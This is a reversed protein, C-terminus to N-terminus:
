RSERSTVSASGSTSYTADVNASGESGSEPSRRAANLSKTWRLSSSWPTIRTVFSGPSNKARFSQNRTASTLLFTGARWSCRAEHEEQEAPEQDRQRQPDRDMDMDHGADHGLLIDGVQQCGRERQPQQVEERPRHQEKELEDGHGEGAEGEAEPREHKETKALM